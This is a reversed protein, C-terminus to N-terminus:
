HTESQNSERDICYTTQVPRVFCIRYPQRSCEQRESVVTKWKLCEGEQPSTVCSSLLLFILLKTLKM